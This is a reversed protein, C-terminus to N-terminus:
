LKLYSQTLLRRYNETRLLELSMDSWDSSTGNSTLVKNNNNSPDPLLRNNKKESLVIWEAGANFLYVHDFQSDIEYSTAGDIHNNGNPQIYISGTGSRKVQYLRNLCSNLSPLQISISNSNNAIIVSEDNLIYGNDADSIAISKYGISGNVDLTSKPQLTRIGVQAIILNCHLFLAIFIGLRLLTM